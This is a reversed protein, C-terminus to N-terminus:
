SSELLPLSFNEFQSFYTIPSVNEKNRLYTVLDGNVMFETVIIPCKEDTFAIGILKLLRPHIFNSMILGSCETQMPQEPLALLRAENLPSKGEDLFEKVGALNDKIMKCAVKMQSGDQAIYSARNVM